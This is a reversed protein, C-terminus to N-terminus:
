TMVMAAPGHVVKLKIGVEMDSKSGRNTAEVGETVFEEWAQQDAKVWAKVM